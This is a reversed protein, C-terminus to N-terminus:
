PAPALGLQILQIMNDFYVYFDTSLGEANFRHLWAIRVESPLETAPLGFYPGTNTGTGIAETLVWGDGMNVERVIEMHIDPFALFYLENLAVLAERTMPVGGLTNYKVVADSTFIKAWESLDLSNYRATAEANAEMPSLGTPEPDPLEFSPVLPPFESAPMAGAAVLLSTIDLYTTIKKIEDGEFEWIDLHIHDMVNGTAPIGMEVWDGLQTATTPHETVVINGAMLLLESTAHFDPWTFFLDDFFTRIEAKTTMPAPAAVYDYVADDAFYAMFQDLNQEYLERHISGYLSRLRNQGLYGGAKTASMTLKGAPAAIEEAPTSSVPDRDGCGVFALVAILCLLLGVYRM